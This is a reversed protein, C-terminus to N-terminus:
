AVALAKALHAKKQAELNFLTDVDMDFHKSLKAALNISLDSGGLFRSITSPEVGIDRAVVSPKLGEKELKRKIFSAAGTPPALVGILDKNINM